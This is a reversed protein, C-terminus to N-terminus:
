ADPKSGTIRLNSGQRGLWYNMSLLDINEEETRGTNPIDM